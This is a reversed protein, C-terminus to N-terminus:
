SSEAGETIDEVLTDFVYELVELGPVGEGTPAISGPELSINFETCRMTQTGGFYSPLAVSVTDGLWVDGLTWPAGLGEEHGDIFRAHVQLRAGARKSLEEAAADYLRERITLTTATGM